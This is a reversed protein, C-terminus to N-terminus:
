GAGQGISGPSEERGRPRAVIQDVEAPTSPISGGYATKSAATRGKFSVGLQSSLSRVSKM